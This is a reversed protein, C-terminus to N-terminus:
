LPNVFVSTHLRPERKYWFAVVCLAIETLQIVCCCVFVGWSVAVHGVGMV